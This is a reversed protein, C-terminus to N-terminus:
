GVEGIVFGGDVFEAVAEFGDGDASLDIGIAGEGVLESGDKWVAVREEIEVHEAPDTIQEGGTELANPLELQLVAGAHARGDGAMEREDFVATGPGVFCIKAVEFLKRAAARAKEQGCPGIGPGLVGLEPLPKWGIWFVEGDESGNRDM